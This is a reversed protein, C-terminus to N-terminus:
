ITPDINLGKRRLAERLRKPIEVYHAENVTQGQSIFETHVIGKIDCLTMLMTKM